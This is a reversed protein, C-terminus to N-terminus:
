DVMEPVKASREGNSRPARHSERQRVTELYTLDKVDTVWHLKLEPKEAAEEMLALLQTYHHSVIQRDLDETSQWEETYLILGADAADQSLHCSVFGRAAPLPLMLLRLARVIAAAQQPSVVMKLSMQVM